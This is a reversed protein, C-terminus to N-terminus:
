VRSSARPRSRFFNEEQFSTGAPCNMEISPEADCISDPLGLHSAMKYVQTKYLHAIPKLDASGDGNKVFFGQDYELLNPTGIVAYNLRDAHFYEVSKRIRQKYNTAAVIQLYEKLELRQELIEGGPKQVVLVFHNIQGQIGGKIVIKNKWDSTYDPFVKLIAEDRASYCGIAKLAPAINLTTHDTGLLQILESSRSQTNEASDTEPLKILYTKNSGFAKASLAACVSSDIGGSVAVVAGRRHLKTRMASRMNECISNAASDYDIDIVEKQYKEALANM